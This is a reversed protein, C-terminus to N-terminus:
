RVLITTMFGAIAMDFLLLAALWGLAIKELAIKEGLEESFIWTPQSLDVYVMTPGSVTMHQATLELAELLKPLLARADEHACTEQLMAISYIMSYTNHATFDSAPCEALREKMRGVLAKLVQDPLTRTVAM